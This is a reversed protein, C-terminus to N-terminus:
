QVLLTTFGSERGGCTLAYTYSGANTPTLLATGEFTTGNLQGVQPGTWHGGGTLGGQVTAHCQQATLSFANSVKWTLTIPQNVPATATPFSLQIPGKLSSSVSDDYLFPVQVAFANTGFAGGALHGDSTELLGSTANGTTVDAKPDSNTINGATLIAGLPTTETFTTAGSAVYSPTLQAGYFNGDSGLISMVYPTTTLQQLNGSTTLDIAGLTSSGYLLGNPGAIFQSATGTGESGNTAYTHVVTPNGSAGLSFIKSASQNFELDAMQGYFNGDAAQLLAPPAIQFATGFFVPDVPVSITTYYSFGCASHQQDPVYEYQTFTRLVSVSGAPTMRFFVGSASTGFSIGGGAIGYFNGDAGEVLPGPSQGNPAGYNTAVYALDCRIIGGRPVNVQSGLFQSPFAYLLTFTGDKALKFATGNGNPGGSTATGYLNGDGAEILPNIGSGDDNIYTGLSNQNAASTNLEFTHLTTVSGQPDVRLIYDCSDAGAVGCTGSATAYLNGDGSQLVSTTTGPTVYPGPPPDINIDVSGILGAAQSATCNMDTFPTASVTDAVAAALSPNATATYVASASASCYSNTGNSGAGTLTGYSGSTSWLYSLPVPTNANQLGVRFSATLPVVGGPQITTAPSVRLRLASSTVVLASGANGLSTYSNGNACGAASYATAFISDQTTAALPATTTSVYTVNPSTSCFTNTGTSGAGVLTGSATAGGGSNLTWQYSGPTVTLDSYVATLALTDGPNITNYGPQISLGPSPDTFVTAAVPNGVQSAAAHNPTSFVTVTVTDNGLATLAQVASATNIYTVNPSSSYFDTQNTRGAGGAETLNGVLPQGALPTVVWHYSYGATNAPDVGLVTAQLGVDGLGNLTTLPPSLTVTAPTAKLTWVDVNDSAALQISYVATDFVQLAGGAAGILANAKKLVGAVATPQFGSSNAAQQLSTQLANSFQEVGIGFLLDNLAGKYDGAVIKDQEGAINGVQTLINKEMALVFASRFNAVGATSTNSSDAMFGSGFCINSIAPILADTVFGNVATTVLIAQQPGTLVVPSAAGSAGAGVNIVQYTTYDFGSTLPVNFPDSSVAAYASPQSGFYAKFIDTVAGTVGGNVGTTPSLDFDTVLAADSTTTSDLTDSQRNVFVHSRRRYSNTLYASGPNQQIVNVGSQPTSAGPDVQVDLPRVGTKKAALAPRPTVGTVSTFFTNLATTLNVDPQAFANPNAALETAVTQALSGFAPLQPIGAIMESRDSENLMQAGGLAYYALVEATTSASVVPHAADMWSMMMPNGSPSLVTLIQEGDDLQALSFSGSPLPTTSTVSDQVTLQDPTLTSGSPLVITGTFTKTQFGPLTTVNLGPVVTVSVAQTGIANGSTCGAGSFVQVTVTDSANATLAPTASSTYITQPSSSCYSIQNTQNAGGVENLLGATATTAWQFSLTGGSGGSVSATFGQQGAQAITASAPSLSVASAPPYQITITWDAPVSALTPQFPGNATSLAFIDSVNATPNHAINLAAQFTDVVSGNSATVNADTMLLSCPSGTGDSNICSALSNALSYIKAQPVIGNGTPTSTLASGMSLNVLNLINGFATSLTAANASGIQTESSAISALSYATAVTTVENVNYFSSPTLNSCSGVGSALAIEANTEGAPLGPNGGVALLYVYEGAPCTYYGAISFNGGNDTVVFGPGNLLSQVSGATSAASTAYLYVKAGAVPQQGGNVHGGLTVGPKLTSEVPSGGGCGSVVLVAILCLVTALAEVRAVRRVTVFFAAYGGKKVALPLLEAITKPASRTFTKYVIVEPGFRSM